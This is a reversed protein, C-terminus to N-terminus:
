LLLVWMETVAYSGKLAGTDTLTLSAGGALPSGSPTTSSKATFTSNPYLPTKSTASGGSPITGNGTGNTLLTSNSAEPSVLGPYVRKYPAGSADYGIAYVLFDGNPIDVVGLYSNSPPEGYEGTGPTMTINGILRGEPTRFMFYTSKYEGDIMALAPSDPGPAPNGDIGEYGDHGPRGKVEALGFSSLHLDSIATVSLSFSDTIDMSAIWFGPAPSKVTVLTGSTFSTVTVQPGTPDVLSGDPGFVTLQASGKVHFNIQKMTSDVPILYPVTLNIGASDTDRVFVGGRTGLGFKKKLFGLALTAYKYRSYAKLLKDLDPNNMFISDFLDDEVLQSLFDIPKEKLKAFDLSISILNVANAQVVADAIATIRAAETRDLNLYALGGTYDALSSYVDDTRGDSCDSQFVFPWVKISKKKAALAVDSVKEADKAGADTILFLNGGSDLADIAALTGTMSYEPCDGGGGSSLSGLASKFAVPDTESLPLGLVPPDNIQALVYLSPENDSGIRENVIKVAETRVGDIIDDMSGTTDIAFALSPGIGFLLKLESKTIEKSIERIFKMTAQTAANVADKHYQPGHPSWGCDFSDKNIGDYSVKFGNPPHIQPLWTPYPIGPFIEAEDTLSTGYSDFHGGHVCKQKNPLKVDEGSYYGSTLRNTVISKTCDHCYCSELCWIDIV